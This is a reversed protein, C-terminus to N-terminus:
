LARWNSTLQQQPTSIFQLGLCPFGHLLSVREVHQMVISQWRAFKSNLSLLHLINKVLTLSPDTVSNVQNSDSRCLRAEQYSFRKMKAVIWTWALYRLYKGRSFLDTSVLLKWKVCLNRIHRSHMGGKHYSEHAVRNVRPGQLHVNLYYCIMSTFHSYKVSM